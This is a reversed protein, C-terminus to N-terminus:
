DLIRYKRLLELRENGIRLADASNEGGQGNGVSWTWLRSGWAVPLLWPREKLYPYRGQLISAPPFASALVANKTRRGQKRAAVADLTINSSHKRSLDADGYLGGTLLDELMPLADVRIKRWTDPYQARDPDFVLYTEGIRFLAAAFRDARIRRCNELVKGWNVRNGYTNAYLVIDCVQRIGFGSHLFHKFAHCILYFLHDTWDLTYVSDGQIEECIACDFVQAFFQNLDGYADSEPPFLHKHLEVHLAGSKKRYSIEYAEQMDGADAEMGFETLIRHCTELQDVPILVDEDGSRRQDPCPYLNRCIIGKVVLPKVGAAQLNRNLDLFEKTRLTQTFVQHRVKRKLGALWLEDLQSLSPNAYVADFVLPLVSHMEALAFLQKWEEAALEGCAAASEGLLAKKLVKLFLNHIPEM